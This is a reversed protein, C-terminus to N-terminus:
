APASSPACCACGGAATDTVARAAGCCARVSDLMALPRSGRAVPTSGQTLHRELAELRDDLERLRRIRDGIERRRDRIVEPLADSMSECHGAHCWGALQAALDLPVDMRRLDVLLRLHEVDATGYERYGNSGRAPRPLWGSREYFRLTDASVGVATALEGIRM